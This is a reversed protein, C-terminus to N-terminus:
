TTSSSSGIVGVWKSVDSYAIIRKGDIVPFDVGNITLKVLSGNEYYEIIESKEDNM